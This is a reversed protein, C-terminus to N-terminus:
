LIYLLLEYHIIFRFTSALIIFGRYSFLLFDYSKSLSNKSQVCFYLGSSFFQYIENLVYVRWFISNLFHFPLGSVLFSYKCDMYTICIPKWFINKFGSVWYFSSFCDLWFHAFLNFMCRGLSSVHIFILCKFLQETDKTILSSCILVM